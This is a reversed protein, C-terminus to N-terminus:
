ISHGHDHFWAADLWSGDKKTRRNYSKKNKGKKKSKSSNDLAAMTMLGLLLLDM